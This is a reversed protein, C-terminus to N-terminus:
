VIIKFLDGRSEMREVMKLFYKLDALNDALPSCFFVLVVIILKNM